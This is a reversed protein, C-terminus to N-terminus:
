LRARVFVMFSTPRYGYSPNLQASYSYSSVLGGVGLNLAGYRLFDRIYGLSLANITFIRGYLAAGPLFLEDKGVRELRAFLTDAPTIRLDSELLWGDSPAGASPVNRGFALTTQWSQTVPANYTASATTRQVDIDPQLQEPAVLHGSSVQMSWDRTPNFTVRAAYSDLAGTQINYHYQDPERGNFASAEFKVNGWTYGTTVVGWAVHTSDLWHHALPAEPDDMGSLRHMFATPGLAPEGPLGGYLFLSSHASLNLSYSLAAEMLLDHPHQRDILPLVGNGSEGSQFLLPYGDRGMLPDGSLMFRLGLAGEGLQRRAMFMLWSTSFTQVAGRAGGQDDYILDAQGHVMGMWPGQMGYIGGMASSDPQWSTGSSERSMAYPGYLASMAGMDVMDGGDHRLEQAPAGCTVAALSISLFYRARRGGRAATQSRTM